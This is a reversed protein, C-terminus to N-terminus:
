LVMSVVSAGHGDVVLKVGTVQRALVGSVVSGREMRGIARRGIMKM